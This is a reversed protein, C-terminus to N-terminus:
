KVDKIVSKDESCFLDVNYAARFSNHVRLCNKEKKKKKALTAPVLRDQARGHSVVHMGVWGRVASLQSHSDVM